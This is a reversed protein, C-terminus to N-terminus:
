YKDKRRLSGASSRRAVEVACCLEDLARKFSGVDEAQFYRVILDDVQKFFAPVPRSDGVVARVPKADRVAAVVAHEIKPEVGAHGSNLAVLLVKEGAPAMNGNFIVGMATEEERQPAM